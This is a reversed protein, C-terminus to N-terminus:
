INSSEIDFVNVILSAYHGNSVTIELPINSIAIIDM